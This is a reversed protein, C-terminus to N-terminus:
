IENIDQATIQINFISNQQVLNPVQVKYKVPPVVHFVLSDKNYIYDGSIRKFRLKLNNELNNFSYHFITASSDSTITTTGIKTEQGIGDILFNRVLYVDFVTNRKVNIPINRKTIDENNIDIITLKFNIPIGIPLNNINKFSRYYFEVFPEPAHRSDIQPINAVKVTAQPPPIEQNVKEGKILIDKIQAVQSINQLNPNNNIINTFTKLGNILQILSAILLPIMLLKSIEVGIIALKSSVYTIKQFTGGQVESVKGLDSIATNLGDLGTGNILNDLISAKSIYDGVMPLMPELVVLDNTVQPNNQNEEKAQEYLSPVKHFESKTNNVTNVQTQLEPNKITTNVRNKLDQSQSNATNNILGEATQKQTISTPAIHPPTPNITEEGTVIRSFKNGYMDLKYNLFEVGLTSYSNKGVSSIYNNLELPNKLNYSDRIINTYETTAKIYTAVSKGTSIDFTLSAFNVDPNPDDDPLLKGNSQVFYKLPKKYFIAYKEGITAFLPVNIRRDGQEVGNNKAQFINEELLLGPNMFTETLSGNIYKEYKFRKIDMVMLLSGYNQTETENFIKSNNFPLNFSDYVTIARERFFLWQCYSKNTPEKEKLMQLFVPHAFLNRTGLSFNENSQDISNLIQSMDNVFALIDSSQQATLLQRSITNELPLDSPTADLKYIIKENAM